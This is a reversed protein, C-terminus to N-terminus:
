RCDGPAAPDEIAPWPLRRDVADRAGARREWGSRRERDVGWLIWGGAMLREAYSVQFTEVEEDGAFTFHERWSGPGCVVLHDADLRLVWITEQGKIFLWSAAHQFTAM